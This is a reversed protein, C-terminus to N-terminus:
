PQVVFQTQAKMEPYNAVVAQITYTGPELPMKPDFDDMAVTEHYVLKDDHNVMSAGVTQVFECNDSYVYIPTGAANVIRFDWRQATPVSLTYTKKGHNHVYLVIKLSPNPALLKLQGIQFPNPTVVVSVDFDKQNVENARQIRKPDGNFISFNNGGSDWDSRPMTVKSPNIDIARVALPFALILGIALLSRM